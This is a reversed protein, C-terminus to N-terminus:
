TDDYILIMMMDDYIMYQYITVGLFIPFHDNTEGKNLIFAHGLPRLKLRRM